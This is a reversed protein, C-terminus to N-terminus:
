SKLLAQNIAILIGDYPLINDKPPLIHQGEPMFYCVLCVLVALIFIISIIIITKKM